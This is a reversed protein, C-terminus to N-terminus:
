CHQNEVHERKGKKQQRAKWKELVASVLRNTPQNIPLELAQQLKVWRFEQAEGNLKVDLSGACRCTYNLLIFHADRYFEKSHICDQVLVFEVDTIDLNTEEKVERRLAEM